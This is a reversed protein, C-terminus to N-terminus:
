GWAPCIRGADRVAEALQPDTAPSQLNWFASLTWGYWVMTSAGANCFASAQEVMQATTPPAVVAGNRKNVGGWAQGIGLWPVRALGAASLAGRLAILLQSMSWDVQSGRSPLSPLLPAAYVYIGLENCGSSSVDSLLQVNFEFKGNRTIFAGIGCVTPRSPSSHHLIAAVEEEVHRLSGFDTGAQDDLIWYGAVLENSATSRAFNRVLMLLRSETMTTDTEGRCYSEVVAPDHVVTRLRYCEYALIWGSIQGSVVTMRLRSLTRGLSSQESPPSGYLYAVRVGSRSAAIAQDPTSINFVGREHLLLQPKSVNAPPRPTAGPTACGAMITACLLAAVLGALGGAGSRLM